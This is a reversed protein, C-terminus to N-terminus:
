TLPKEEGPEPDKTKYNYIIAPPILPDSSAEGAISTTEEDEETLLYDVTEENEEGWDIVEAQPGEKRYGWALVCGAIAGFLHAEWSIGIFLPFFGWVMGGYLFVVILSLAMLRREKRLLGSLLVFSALGYVIGSAGIHWTERGGLWLWIGQLLWIYLIVKMALERYFYFMFALLIVLPVSNSFLHSVDGHIFPMTIIGKLSNLDGPFIGFEVFSKDYHLEIGKIVWLVMVFFLGPLFSKLISREEPRMNICLYKFM